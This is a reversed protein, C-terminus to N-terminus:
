GPSHASRPPRASSRRRRAAPNPSFPRAGPRTRTSTTPSTKFATRHQGTVALGFRRFIDHGSGTADPRALAVLGHRAQHGILLTFVPPWPGSAQTRAAEMAARVGNDATPDIILDFPPTEATPNGYANIAHTNRSTVTTTRWIRNLRAALGDAKFKGIDEDLYPQRVLIGPTVRAKDVVTVASAGARVCFETAPYGLAGCGLVLVRKGVLWAASSAGDRRLTVEPRDELVEVWNTDAFGLWSEGISLVERRLEPADLQNVRNLLDAVQKAFGDMCWAVLHALRPGGDGFHRSPTGVIV